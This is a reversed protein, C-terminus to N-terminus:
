LQYPQVLIAQKAMARHAVGGALEVREAFSKRRHFKASGEPGTLLFSDPPVGQSGERGAEANGDPV